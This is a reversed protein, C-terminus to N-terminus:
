LEHQDDHPQNLLKPTHRWSRFLQLLFGWSGLLIIRVDGLLSSRRALSPKLPEM